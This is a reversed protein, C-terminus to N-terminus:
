ITVVVPFDYSSKEEHALESNFVNKMNNITKANLFSGAYGANHETM